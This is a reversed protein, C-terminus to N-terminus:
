RDPKFSYIKQKAEEYLQMEYQAHSILTAEGKGGWIDEM